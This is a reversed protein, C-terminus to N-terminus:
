FLAAIANFFLQYNSPPGQMYFYLGHDKLMRNQKLAIFLLKYSIHFRIYVVTIFQKQETQCGITMLIRGFLKMSSRFMSSLPTYVAITIRAHILSGESDM